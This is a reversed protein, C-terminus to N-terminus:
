GDSGSGVREPARDLTATTEVRAWQSSSSSTAITEIPQSPVAIKYWQLVVHPETLIQFISFLAKKPAGM